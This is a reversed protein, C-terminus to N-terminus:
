PLCCGKPSEVEPPASNHIHKWTLGLKISSITTPLVNFRVAIDVGRHGMALCAKIERVDDETLKASHHASGKAGMTSLGTELAHINNERLTVWELNAPKNNTKIGSKHNVEPKSEPNPVFCEAVLQHIRVYKHVGGRCLCVRPYGLVDITGKLIRPHLYNHTIRLSKVRGLSSISYVREWGVVDKWIEESYDIENM